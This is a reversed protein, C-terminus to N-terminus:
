AGSHAARRRRLQVYIAGSGGHRRGAEGFGVVLDRHDPRALWAPVSQRLVGRGGAGDGGDGGKGTIVLVLRAGRLQERRLFALLAAFAREQRMGHLDIRADIEVLGRGLRRLTREELLALAPEPPKAKQLKPAAVPGKPRARGREVKEPTVVAKPQKAPEIPKAAKQRRLPRVSKRIRDWIARDEQSLRRTM